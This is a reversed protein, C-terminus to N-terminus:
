RISEGEEAVSEPPKGPPSLVRVCEARFGVYGITLTVLCYSAISVPWAGAALLRPTDLYSEGTYWAIALYSGNALLCFHAVFWAWSQRLLAALLLPMLAGLVPGGWLTVLPYPDPDFHSHPLTWPWVEAHHLTGGSAWGALIHGMEHTFTMVSWSVLLLIVFLFMRQIM